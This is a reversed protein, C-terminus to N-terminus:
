NLYKIIIIVLLYIYKIIINLYKNFKLFFFNLPTKQIGFNSWQILHNVNEM